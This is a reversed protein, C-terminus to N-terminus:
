KHSAIILASTTAQRIIQLGERLSRKARVSIEIQCTDSKGLFIQLLRFTQERQYQLATIRFEPFLRPSTLSLDLIQILIVGGSHFTELM